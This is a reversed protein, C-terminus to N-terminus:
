HYPVIHPHFHLTKHLLFQICNFSTGVATLVSGPITLDAPWKKKWGGGGGGGGGGAREDVGLSLPIYNQGHGDMTQRDKGRDKWGDLTSWQVIVM